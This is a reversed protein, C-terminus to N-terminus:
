KYLNNSPLLQYSEAINSDTVKTKNSDMVIISNLVILFILSAAMSYATRMSVSNNLKNKIKQQVRMYLHSPTEVQKISELTKLFDEM